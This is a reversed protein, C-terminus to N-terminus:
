KVPWMVHAFPTGAMMVYPGNKSPQTPIGTLMSASPYVMMVHPGWHHWQNNATPHTEAMPDINSGSEDATLMYGYGVQTIKPNRKGIYAALWEQWSPDICMADNKRYKTKPESPYCAWGNSGERLTATKGNKDPWDKITANKSISAPAAAMAEKIKTEKSQARATSGVGIVLAAVLGTCLVKRWM